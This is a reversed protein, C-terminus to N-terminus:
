EKTPQGAQWCGKGVFLLLRVFCFWILTVWVGFTGLTGWSAALENLKLDIYVETEVKFCVSLCVSLCVSVCVCVCVCVRV